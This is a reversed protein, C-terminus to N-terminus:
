FIILNTLEIKSYHLFQGPKDYEKREQCRQHRRGLIRIGGVTKQLRGAAGVVRREAEDFGPEGVDTGELRGVEGDEGDFVVGVLERCLSEGTCYLDEFAAAQVGGLGDLEDAGGM